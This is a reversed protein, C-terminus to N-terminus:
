GDLAAILMDQNSARAYAGHARAFPPIRNGGLIAARPPGPPSNTM